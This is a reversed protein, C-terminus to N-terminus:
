KLHYIGVVVVVMCTFRPLSISDPYWLRANWGTWFLKPRGWVVTKDAPTQSFDIFMGVLHMHCSHWLAWFSFKQIGYVTFYNHQVLNKLRSYLIVIESLTIHVGYLAQVAYTVPISCLNCPIRESSRMIRKHLHPIAAPDYGCVCYYHPSVPM